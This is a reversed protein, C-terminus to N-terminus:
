LLELLREAAERPFGAPQASELLERIFARAEASQPLLYGAERSLDEATVRTSALLAAALRKGEPGPEGEAMARAAQEQRAASRSLAQLPKKVSEDTPQQPPYNAPVLSIAGSPCADVCARCAELCRAADIQGNDTDTAGTPCVYLCLCDKTCLRINRVAKM